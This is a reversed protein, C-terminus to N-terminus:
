LDYSACTNTHITNTTNNNAHIKEIGQLAKTKGDLGNLYMKYSWAIVVVKDVRLRAEWLWADGKVM